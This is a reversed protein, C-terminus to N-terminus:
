LMLPYLRKLKLRAGATSFQWNVTAGQESRSREWAATESELIDRDSIRRDLCQESLVGIEIEVMNLWGDHTPRYYFELRDRIRKAEAAELAEHLSAPSHTNLNDLVIVM